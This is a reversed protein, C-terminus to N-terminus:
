FNIELLLELFPSETKLSLGLWTRMRRETRGVESKKWAQRPPVCQESHCYQMDSHQCQWGSHRAKGESCVLSAMWLAIEHVCM